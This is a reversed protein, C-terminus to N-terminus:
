VLSFSDLAFKTRIEESVKMAVKRAIDLPLNERLAVLEMMHNHSEFRSMVLEFAMESLPAKQNRMLVTIPKETGCEVMKECISPTLDSRRAVATLAFEELEGILQLWDDEEFVDTM